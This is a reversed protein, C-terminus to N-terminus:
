NMLLQSIVSTHVSVAFFPLIFVGLWDARHETKGHSRRYIKSSMLLGGIEISNDECAM